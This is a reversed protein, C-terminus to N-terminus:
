KSDIERFFPHMSSAAPDGGANLSAQSTAPLAPQPQGLSGPITGPVPAGPATQQGLPLGNQGVSVFFVAGTWFPMMDVGPVLKGIASPVFVWHFGLLWVMVMAVAADLIDNVPSLFGLESFAPILLWQVIDAIVAIIGAIILRPTPIKISM